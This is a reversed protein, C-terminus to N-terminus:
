DNSLATVLFLHFVEQFELRLTESEEELGQGVRRLRLFEERYKLRGFGGASRQYWRSLSHLRRQNEVFRVRLFVTRVILSSLLALLEKQWPDSALVDRFSM